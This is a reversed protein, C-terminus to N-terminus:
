PKALLYDRGVVTKYVGYLGSIPWIDWVMNFAWGKWTRTDWTTSKTDVRTKEFVTPLHEANYKKRMDDYWQRDYIEDFEEQTYYAQAYLWKVGGLKRVKQELRRNQVVFRPYDRSGPGWVGVNIFLRDKGNEKERSSSLRPRLALEKKLRFPCLWLPYLGFEAHVFALFDEVSDEPLLLDQIIYQRSHRSAHLAHYMVRTHMFYDLAWRTVRNFPTLFYSYAYAGTWFAGRDYRFLYDELPTAVKVPEIRGRTLREVHIYHWPDTAKSFGQVKTGPSPEDTLQGTIIVGRDKAFLIGDVYDTDGVDCALRMTEIASEFSDTPHYTLEVYTKAAILRLELLTTVAITGFSGAVAHFLDAHERRSANVVEGSPLVLEVWNVIDEFFGYRFGSSEGATGAFGGGVTQSSDSGPLPSM